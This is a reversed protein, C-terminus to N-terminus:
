KGESVSISYKLFLGVNRDDVQRVMVPSELGAVSASGNSSIAERTKKIEESIMSLVRARYQEPNAVALQLTGLECKAKGPMSLSDIFRAAGAGAQFINGSNTSIPVHLYIEATAAPQSWSGSSIGYGGRHQSLTVVGMSTQFQGGEKAKRAILEIAQHTEEYAAAANKQESTVRIPVSVFDAPIRLSVAVPAPESEAVVIIVGSSWGSSIGALARLGAEALFLMAVLIRTRMVRDQQVFAQMSCFVQCFTGM